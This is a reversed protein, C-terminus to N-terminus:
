NSSGPMKLGGLLKDLLEQQKSTPGSGGTVLFQIDQMLGGAETLIGAALGGAKSLEVIYDLNQAKAVSEAHTLSTELESVLRKLVDLNVKTKSM